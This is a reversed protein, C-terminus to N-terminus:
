LKELLEVRQSNTMMGTLDYVIEVIHEMLDAEDILAIMKNVVAEIEPRPEQFSM